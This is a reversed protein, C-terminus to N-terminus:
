VFELRARGSAQATITSAGAFLGFTASRSITITVEVTTPSPFTVAVDSAAVGLRVAHEVAAATAVAAQLGHTPTGTGAGARAAGEAINSAQREAALFRAGNFILGASALTIAVLIVMAVPASGRDRRRVDPPTPPKM